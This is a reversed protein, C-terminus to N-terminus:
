LNKNSFVIIGYTLGVFINSEGDLVQLDANLQFKHGFRTNIPEIKGAGIGVFGANKAATYNIKTGVSAFLYEFDEDKPDSIFFTPQAMAYLLHYNPDIFSYRIGGSLAFWNLSQFGIQSTFGYNFKGPPLQSREDDTKARNNRIIDALDLGVNAELTGFMGLKSPKDQSFVFASVLLFLLYYKKM